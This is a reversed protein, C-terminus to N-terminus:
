LVNPFGPERDVIIVDEVGLGDWFMGQKDSEDIAVMKDQREAEELIPFLQDGIYAHITLLTQSYKSRVATYHDFIEKGSKM